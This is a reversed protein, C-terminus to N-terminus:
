LGLRHKLQSRSSKLVSSAAADDLVRALSMAGVMEALASGALAQPESAGLAALAKALAATFATIGRQFRQRAAPPMRAAEGSLGPLPCGRDALRRMDDSLYFDILSSLGQAADAHSLHRDLMQASDRFMRDIAHAVLDDRNKFHAYFGGHTLGARKMLAAVGIGDWGDERMAKAAEDLIRARTREKATLTDAM